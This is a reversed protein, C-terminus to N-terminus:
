GGVDADQEEAADNSSRLLNRREEPTLARLVQLIEPEEPEAAITEKSKGLARSEIQGIARLPDGTPASSDLALSESM